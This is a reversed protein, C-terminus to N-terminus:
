KQNDSLVQMITSHIYSSMTNYVEVTDVEM